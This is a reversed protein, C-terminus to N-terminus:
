QGGERLADLRRVQAALEDFGVKYAPVFGDVGMPQAVNSPMNLLANLFALKTSKPLDGRGSIVWQPVWATYALIRVRDQLALKQILEKGVGEELFGADADGVSVNLLVNEQCNRVAEYTKLFLFPNVGMAALVVAQSVFGGASLYSVVVVKRGKLDRLNSAPSNKPVVVMGRTKVKRGRVAVAIPEMQSALKLAVVSDQYSVEADGRQIGEVFSHFSSCPKIQLDMGTKEKLYSSLPVLMRYMQVPTYQPLVAMTYSKQARAPSVVCLSLFLLTFVMRVCMGVGGLLRIGFPISCAIRM